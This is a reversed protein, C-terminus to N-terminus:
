RTIAFAVVLVCVTLALRLMIDWAQNRTVNGLLSITQTPLM